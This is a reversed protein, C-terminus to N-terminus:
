SAEGTPARKGPKSVGGPSQTAKTKRPKSRAKYPTNMLRRAAEQARQAIQEPTFESSM